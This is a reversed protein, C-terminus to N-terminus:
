SGDGNLLVPKCPIATAGCREIKERVSRYAVAVMRATEDLPVGESLLFMEGSSMKAVVVAGDLQGRKLLDDYQALAKLRRGEHGAHRRKKM